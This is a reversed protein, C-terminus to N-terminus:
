FSGGVCSKDNLHTFSTSLDMLMSFHKMSCTLRHHVFENVGAVCVCVVGVCVVCVCVCVCTPILQGVTGNAEGESKIDAPRGVEPCTHCEYRTSQVGAQRKAGAGGM